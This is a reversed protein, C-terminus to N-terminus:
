CVKAHLLTVQGAQLQLLLWEFCVNCSVAARGRHMMWMQLHTAAHQVAAAEHM